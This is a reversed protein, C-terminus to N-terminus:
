EFAEEPDVFRSTDVVDFGTADEDSTGADLPRVRTAKELRNLATNRAITFLWSKFSAGSALSGLGTMAKIFTDQAIDAAETRDHVLRTLFAYFRYLSREYLESMADQDGGTAREVLEADTNM